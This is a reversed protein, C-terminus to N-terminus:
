FNLNIATTADHILSAIIVVCVVFVVAHVWIHISLKIFKLHSKFFLLIFVLFEIVFIPWVAWDTEM